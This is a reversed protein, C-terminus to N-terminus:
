INATFSREQEKVVHLKMRQHLVLSIELHDKPALDYCYFFAVALFKIFTGPFKTLNRYRDVHCSQLTRIGFRWLFDSCKCSLDEASLTSLVNLIYSKFQKGSQPFTTEWCLPKIQIISHQGQPGVQTRGGHQSIDVARKAGTSHNGASSFQPM